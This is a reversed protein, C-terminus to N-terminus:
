EVAAAGYSSFSAKTDNEPLNNQKQGDALASGTAIFLVLYAGLIALLNKEVNTKIM